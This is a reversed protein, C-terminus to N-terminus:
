FPVEWAAEGTTGTPALYSGPSSEEQLWAEFELDKNIGAELLITLVFENDFLVVIRYNTEKRYKAAGRVGRNYASLRGAVRDRKPRGFRRRAGICRYLRLPPCRHSIGSDTHGM